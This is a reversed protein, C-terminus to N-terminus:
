FFPVEQAELTFKAKQTAFFLMRLWEKHKFTSLLLFLM